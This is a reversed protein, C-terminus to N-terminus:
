PLTNLISFNNIFADTAILHNKLLRPIDVINPIILNLLPNNTYM